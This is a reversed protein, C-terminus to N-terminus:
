RIRNIDDSNSHVNSCLINFDRQIQHMAISLKVYDVLQEHTAKGIIFAHPDDQNHNDILMIRREIDDNDTISNIFITEKEKKM